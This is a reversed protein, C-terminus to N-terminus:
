RIMSFNMKLKWFRPNGKESEEQIEISINKLEHLIENFQVQAEPNAVVIM